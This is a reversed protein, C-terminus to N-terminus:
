IQYVPSVNYYTCGHQFVNCRSHLLSADRQMITSWNLSGGSCRWILTRHYELPKVCARLPAKMIVPFAKRKSLKKWDPQTIYIM